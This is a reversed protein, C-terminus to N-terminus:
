MQLCIAHLWLMVHKPTFDEAAEELVATPDEEFNGMEVEEFHLEM